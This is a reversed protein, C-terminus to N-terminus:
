VRRKEGGADVKWNKFDERYQTYENKEGSFFDGFVGFEIKRTEKNYRTPGFQNSADLAKMIIRAINERLWHSDSSINLGNRWYYVDTPIGEEKLVRDVHSELGM